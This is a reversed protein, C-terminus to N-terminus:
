RKAVISTLEVVLPRLTINLVGPDQQFYLDLLSLPYHCKTVHKTLGLGGYRVIYIPRLGPMTCLVTHVM